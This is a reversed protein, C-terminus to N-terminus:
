FPIENPDAPVGAGIDPDEKTERRRVWQRAMNEQKTEWILHDPNVCLWEDECLHSAEHTPTPAPGHIIECMVRAANQQRPGREDRICIAPRHGGGHRRTTGIWLWCDCEIRIQAVLRHWLSEYM